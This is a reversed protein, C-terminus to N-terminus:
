GNPLDVCLKSHLAAPLRCSRHTDNVTIFIISLNSLGSQVMEKQCGGCQGNDM